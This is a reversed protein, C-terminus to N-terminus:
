LRFVRVVLPTDILTHPAIAHYAWLHVWANGTRLTLFTKFMGPVAYLLLVFVLSTAVERVSGFMTWADGAHLGAYTLGGLLVTAVTSGTLQAYRPVLIAQVFVLTPLGTGLLYLLFTLPVGLLLQSGDLEVIAAGLVLLQVTAEVALVAVIVRADRRRNQSRLWLSRASYRRRFWVLPIVAYAVCNYGAWVWAETPSVPDHTGVVSGALHFSIPHRGLTMGLAAGLLQVMLGYGLVGLV